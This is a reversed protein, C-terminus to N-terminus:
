SRGPFLYANGELIGKTKLVLQAHRAARPVDEVSVPTRLVSAHFACFFLAFCFVSKGIVKKVGTSGL